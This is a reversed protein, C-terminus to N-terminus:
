KDHEIKEMLLVIKEVLDKRERDLEEQLIDDKKM